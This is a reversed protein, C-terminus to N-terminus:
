DVLVALVKVNNDIAANRFEKPIMMDDMLRLQLAILQCEIHLNFLDDGVITKEKLKKKIEGPDITGCADMIGHLEQGLNFYINSALAKQYSERDKYKKNFFDILPQAALSTASDKILPAIEQCLYVVEARERVNLDM